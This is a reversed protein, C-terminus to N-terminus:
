AALHEARLAGMLEDWHGPGGAFIDRARAALEADAPLTQQGWNGLHALLPVLQIASETLRYTVRQKHAPDAARILLGADVLAQLRDRLINTAIKEDSELFQNYTRKGGFMMDRLVLLSWRDGLIELALNIPCGSRNHNRM